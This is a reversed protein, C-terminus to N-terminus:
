ACIEAVSCTLWASTISVLLALGSIVLASLNGPM